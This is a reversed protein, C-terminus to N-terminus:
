SRRLLGSEAVEGLRIFGKKYIDKTSIVLLTRGLVKNIEVKEQIVHPRVGGDLEIYCDLESIYWDYWKYHPEPYKPEVEYEYQGFLFTDAFYAEAKSRYLHGDKGQTRVGFGNNYDAEFGSQEIAKNWSGFHKQITPNSPYKGDSNEFDRTQPIKGHKEVFLQISHIIEQKTWAKQTNPSFGSAEIARNWSGFYVVVTTFNPYKGESKEFDRRVPIKGYEEVFLQISEIIEQKTWTKQVNPNFGSVEIAKNWSGFQKIITSCSPYKGESKEFDKTQPIKGHEEYFLQISEILEQEVWSKRKRNPNLGAAEITNNWSGFHRRITERGPYKGKSKDFDRRVPVKGHEEVFLLISEIIKDKNWKNM